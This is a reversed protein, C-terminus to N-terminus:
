KSFKKAFLSESFYGSIMTATNSVTNSLGNKCLIEVWGKKSEEVDFGTPVLPEFLDHPDENPYLKAFERGLWNAYMDEAFDGDVRDFNNRKYDDQAGCLKKVSKENGVLLGEFNGVAHFYKDAGKYNMQNKKVLNKFLQYGSKLLNMLGFGKRKKTESKLVVKSEGRLVANLDVGEKFPTKLGSKDYKEMFEQLETDTLVEKYSDTNCSEAIARAEDTLSNLHLQMLMPNEDAYNSQWYEMFMQNESAELSGSKDIDFTKAVPLAKQSFRTINIVDHM